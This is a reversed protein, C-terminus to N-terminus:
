EPWFYFIRRDRGVNARSEPIRKRPNPSTNSDIPDGLYTSARWSQEQAVSSLPRLDDMEEELLTFEEENGNQAAILCEVMCQTEKLETAKQAALYRFRL